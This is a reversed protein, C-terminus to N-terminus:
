NFNIKECNLEKLYGEFYFHEGWGSDAYMSFGYDISSYGGGQFLNTDIPTKDAYMKSKELNVQFYNKGIGSDFIVNGKYMFKISSNSKSFLVTDVIMKRVKSKHIFCYDVTNVNSMPTFIIVCKYLYANYGAFPDTFSKSDDYEIVIPNYNVIKGKTQKLFENIIEDNYHSFTKIKITNEM